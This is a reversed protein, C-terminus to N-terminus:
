EKKTGIVIIIQAFLQIGLGGAIIWWWSKPQVGWGHIMVLISVCIGLALGFVTVLFRRIADM